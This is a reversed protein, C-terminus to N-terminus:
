CNGVINTNGITATATGNVVTDGGLLTATRTSAVLSNNAKITFQGLLNGGGDFTIAYALLGSGSTVAGTSLVQLIRPATGNAVFGAFIRGDAVFGHQFGKNTPATRRTSFIRPNGALSDIDIVGLLTFPQTTNFETWGAISDSDFVGDYIKANGACLTCATVRL